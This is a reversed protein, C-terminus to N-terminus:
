YGAPDSEEMGFGRALLRCGASSEHFYATVFCVAQCGGFCPPASTPFALCSSRIRSYRSYHVAFCTSFFIIIKNWSRFSGSLLTGLFFCRFSCRYFDLYTERQQQHQQNINKDSGVSWASFVHKIQSTQQRPARSLATTFVKNNQRWIIETVCSVYKQRLCIIYSAQIASWTSIYM